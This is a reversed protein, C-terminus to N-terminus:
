IPVIDSICCSELVSSFPIFFYISISIITTHSGYDTDEGVGEKCLERQCQVWLVPVLFSKSFIFLCTIATSPCARASPLEGERM